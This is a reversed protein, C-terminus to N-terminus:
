KKAEAGVVQERGEVGDEAREEAGEKTRNM